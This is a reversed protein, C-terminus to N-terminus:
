GWSEIRHDLAIRAQLKQAQRFAEKLVNRELDNLQRPDLRNAGTYGLGHRLQTRLRALHVVYFADAIGAVNEAALVGAAGASRIREATNTHPIGHALALVRAADVFLRSGFAKLDLTRPFEKSRDFSFDRIRGLPPRFRLAEQALLTLFLHRDEVAGLLWEWLQEALAATGYVPRLDFFITANLVAEPEPQDIWRSFARRWEAPTLCWQRNSAMVNGKCLPFGCADLAENVARAFPLMAARVEEADAEDAEFIIGNDQDTSFTQELRGESGLAIWCFRVPPLDFRDATLEITRITLLDNLTSIFHTLTEANTGQALLTETLRRIGGAAARLGEVDRADQIDGSVVNLGQRQLGFLEDQSVVGVLAGQGDVVVVHRVGHRAMTLVAQHATAGPGLTILGSTMVTAIPQELDVAPLAVRRVLDEYTFVGTPIRGGPAVVVVLGSRDAEMRRLTERITADLPALLPPHALIAALPSFMTLM